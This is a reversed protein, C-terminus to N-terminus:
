IPGHRGSDFGPIIVHAPPSLRNRLDASPACIPSRESIAKLNPDADLQQVVMLKPANHKPPNGLFSWMALGTAVIGGAVFLLDQRM